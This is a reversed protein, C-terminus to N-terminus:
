DNPKLKFGHYFGRLAFSLKTWKGRVIFYISYGIIKIFQVFLNIIFIIGDAHKRVLYLHNRTDYYHIIPNLKGGKMKVEAKSSAGAVHYIKSQPVYALNYGHSRFRFSWDVDEFYAFFKEDLLGVKEIVKTKVLICCGTIWDVKSVKSFDESDTKGLGITRTIGLWSYYKGGANWILERNKLFFIKPQAAAYNFNEELFNVLPGLFDSEVETDNNLLMCYDYGRDIAYKLGLNNGGTFGANIKSQIFIVGPFDKALKEGSGDESANDVLIIKFNTYNLRNLSLICKQTFAYGNWNVIIIAVSPM